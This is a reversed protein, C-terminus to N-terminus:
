NLVNHRYVWINRVLAHLSYLRKMLRSMVCVTCCVICTGLTHIVLRVWGGVCVCGVCGVCGVCVWVCRLCVALCVGWVCVHRAGDRDAKAVTCM